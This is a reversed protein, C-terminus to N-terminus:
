LCDRVGIANYNKLEGYQLQILTMGFKQLIKGKKGKIYHIRVQLVLVGM